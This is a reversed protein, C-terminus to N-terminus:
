LVEGSGHRNSPAAEITIILLATCIIQSQEVNVAKSVNLRINYFSKLYVQAAQSNLKVHVM